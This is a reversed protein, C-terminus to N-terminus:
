SHRLKKFSYAQINKQCSQIFYGYWWLKFFLITKMFTLKCHRNNVNRYAYLNDTGVFM